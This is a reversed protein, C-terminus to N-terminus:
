IGHGAVIHGDQLRAPIYVQHPELRQSVGLWAIVAGLVALVAVASWLLWRARTGLFWWGGFLAFPTLFLALESLRLM